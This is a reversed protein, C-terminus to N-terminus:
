GPARRVGGNMVMTKAFTSEPKTMCHGLMQCTLDLRIAEGGPAQSVDRREGGAQMDFVIQPLPGAFHVLRHSDTRLVAYNSEAAAFGLSQQMVTPSVPNAFDHESYSVAKGGQGSELLSRLSAGNFADPAERGVLDLITPAVDISETMAQVCRPALGPVRVLLPVHFSADHFSSKGWVDYDGLVEGHDATVILVTDDWRGSSKLWDIVRGIHHDVEAALGLYLARLQNVTDPTPELDPFGEVTKSVPYARRLATVFPHEINDESRLPAPIAADSYRTNYPAPAVLPPHPRLYTLTAFWGQSETQVRELFCDTVFATDSHEARYRAPSDITDGDPVYLANGDPVAYGQARLHNRWAHDDSDPRQRLVETFGPLLEEYSTLRPDDPDLVRPDQTVDTYGFLLPDYGASRMEHALNPTDHRLPTGNRVARHNRAYQATFLSVRSPGCPTVVSYHRRFQCSERALTALHKLGAVEALAGDLLDARFQDIIILLVNSRDPM